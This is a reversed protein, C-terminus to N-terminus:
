IKATNEEWWKHLLQLRKSTQSTAITNQQEETGIGTFMKESLSGALSSKFPIGPKPVTSEIVPAKIITAIHKFDTDSLRIGGILEPLDIFEGDQIYSLYKPATVVWGKPRDFKTALPAEINPKTGAYCTQVRLEYSPENTNNPLYLYQNLEGNARKIINEIDSEERLGFFDPANGGHGILTVTDFIRVAQTKYTKKDKKETIKTQLEYSQQQSPDDENQRVIEKTTETPTIIILLWEPENRWRKKLHAKWDSKENGKPNILLGLKYHTATDVM